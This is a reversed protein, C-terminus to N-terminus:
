GSACITRKRRLQLPPSAVAASIPVTPSTPCCLLRNAYLVRSGTSLARCCQMELGVACVYPAFILSSRSRACPLLTCPVHRSDFKLKLEIWDALVTRYALDDKNPGVKAEYMSFRPFTRAFAAKEQRATSIGDFLDVRNSVFAALQNGKREGCAAILESKIDHMALQIGARVDDKIHQKWTDGLRGRTSWRTLAMLMLQKREEQFFAANVDQDDLATSQQEDDPEAGLEDSLATARADWCDVSEYRARCQPFWALHRALSKRKGCNRCIERM